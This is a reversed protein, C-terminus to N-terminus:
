EQKELGQASERQIIRSQGVIGFLVLLGYIILFVGAVLGSFALPAVLSAGRDDPHSLFKMGQVFPTWFVACAILGLLIGALANLKNWGPNWITECTSCLRSRRFLFGSDKESQESEKSGCVPCQIMQSKGQVRM